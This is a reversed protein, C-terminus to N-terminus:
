KDDHLLADVLPKKLERTKKDIIGFSSSFEWYGWGIGLKELRERVCRTWRARSDMDAASYAGFEGCYMPLSYKDMFRKATELNEEVERIEQPTGRWEIDKLKSYTPSWSAGQHTFELPFYYHFTTIIRSDGEPPVLDNLAFLGNYDVGGIMIYRDPNSKRITKVLSNQLKNWEAADVMWKPENMVEFILRDSYDSFHGAVQEWIAHLKDINEAPNVAAEEFHHINLIVSLGIELFKSVEGDVMQMFNDDIKFGNEDDCHASWRVPLRIHDFGLNKITDYYYDKIPNAFKVLKVPKNEFHNGINVGRKITLM